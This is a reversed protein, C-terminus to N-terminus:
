YWGCVINIPRNIGVLHSSRIGPCLHCDIFSCKCSFHWFFGDRPKIVTIWSYVHLLCAHYLLPKKSGKCNKTSYHKQSLMAHMQIHFFQGKTTVILNVNCDSSQTLFMSCHVGPFIIVHRLVLVFHINIKYEYDTLLAKRLWVVWFLILHWNIKLCKTLEVTLYLLHLWWRWCVVGLRM